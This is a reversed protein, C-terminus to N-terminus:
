NETFIKNFLLTFLTLIVFSLFIVYVIIIGKFDNNDGNWTPTGPSYLYKKTLFTHISLVSNLNEDYKNENVLFAYEDGGEIKLALFDDEFFGHRFLFAKGDKEILLKDNGLYDWTGKEVSGNTSILLDRNKRFIYISKRNELEEVVVWHRSTLLTEDNLQKSYRSISPIIDSLYTQM